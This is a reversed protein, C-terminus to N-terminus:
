NIDKGNQLKKIFEGVLNRTRESHAQLMAKKAFEEAKKYEGIASYAKTMALNTIFEGPHKDYDLKLVAFAEKQNKNQILMTGYLYLQFIDGFPIAKKREEIAEANRGMSDLVMAKTNWSEFSQSGGLPVNTATDAWLLAEDLNTKHQACWKAAYNWPEWTYGKLGPLEKRFSEVQTKVLDVEIKFPIILKEWALDVTASTTTENVFEYKLWEVSRDTGIPKVKVRLADESPNYYFSGWSYNNRSFILTCEAPDYAVFFGYKGAPLPQGEIIVDTSFEITTNENAGARWPSAKSSGYGQYVFGVPVLQGWINGERGKLGPRSYHITVDTIGIIETITAKRNDGDSTMTLQGDTKGMGAYLYFLLAGIMKVIKRM